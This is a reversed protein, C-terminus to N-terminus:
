RRALEELAVRRLLAPDARRGSWVRIQEVAQHVLMDLGDQARCGAARAERLLRTELPRYVTDFVTTGRRLQAADVPTAAVDPAMGVSTANVLLDYPDDLTGVAGGLDEVVREARSRTRNVVAVSMDLERLAYVVARAAGGAGLVTARRGRWDGLPELTSTVGIWDTNDAVIDGDRATLTNAAGIRRADASVRDALELVAEKHPLSVCLQTVGGAFLARVRPALEAPPVDHAEFEADLGLARYAARHIVPSLTHCAPHLVIGCHASV